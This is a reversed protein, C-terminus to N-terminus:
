PVKLAEVMWDMALGLTRQMRNKRRVQMMVLDSDAVYRLDKREM